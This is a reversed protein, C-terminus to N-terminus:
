ILFVVSRTAYNKFCIYFEKNHDSLLLPPNNYLPVVRLLKFSKDFDLVKKPNVSLAYSPIQEETDNEHICECNLSLDFECCCCPTHDVEFSLASFTSTLVFVLILSIKSIFKTLSM